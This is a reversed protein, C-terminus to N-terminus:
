DDFLPNKYKTPSGCKPDLLGEEETITSELCLLSVPEIAISTRTWNSATSRRLPLKALSTYESTGEKGEEQEGAEPKLGGFIHSKMEEEKVDSALLRAVQM